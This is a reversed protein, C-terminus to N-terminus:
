FAFHDESNESIDKNVFQNTTLILSLHNYEKYHELRHLKTKILKNEYKYM